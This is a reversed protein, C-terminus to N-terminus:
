RGAIQRLAARFPVTLLLGGAVPALAHALILHRADSCPCSLHVVLAGAAVAGTAAALVALLPRYPAGRVLFALAGLAPPLALLLSLTLCELDTSWSAIPGLPLTGSLLLVAGVGGALLVGLLGAAVGARAARERGPVSSALAAVVGGLGVLTLGVLIAAFGPSRALADLLDARPGRVELAFAAASLALLAVGAAAARLRLIRRVPELEGTLREILQSTAENM